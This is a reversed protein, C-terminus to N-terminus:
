DSVGTEFSNLTQSPAWTNHAKEFAAVLVMTLKM